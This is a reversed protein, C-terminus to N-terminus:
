RPAPPSPRAALVTGRVQEWAAFLAPLAPLWAGTDWTGETYGSHCRDPWTDCGCQDRHYANLAEDAVTALAVATAEELQLPGLRPPHGDVPTGDAHRVEVGLSGARAQYQGSLPGVEDQWRLALRGLRCRAPCDDPHALSMSPENSGNSVTLRHWRGPLLHDTDLATM